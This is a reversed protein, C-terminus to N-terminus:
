AKSRRVSNGTAVYTASAAVYGFVVWTIKRNMTNITMGMMLAGILLMMPLVGQPGKYGRLAAKFFLCLGILLPITGAIGTDIMARLIINHTDRGAADSFYLRDALVELSKTPGWGFIPRELFMNWAEAFIKTRGATSGSEFTLEWRSSAAEDSRIVYATGALVACGLLLAKIHTGFRGPQWLFVAGGAFLALMAGRSGTRVLCVVFFMIPFWLAHRWVGLSIRRGFGVGLLLLLALMLYYASTNLGEGLATTRSLGKEIVEASGIGFHMALVLIGSGAAFSMLGMVATRDDRMMNYCIWFAILNQFSTLATSLTTDLDEAAVAAGAVVGVGLYLMLWGWAAPPRRLTIQPQSLAVLALFLGAMKTLSFFSSIGFPDVTELPVLFLYLYLSLRIYMSARLSTPPALGQSSAAPYRVAATSM